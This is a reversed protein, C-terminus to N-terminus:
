NGFGLLYYHSMGDKVKERFWYCINENVNSLNSKHYLAQELGSFIEIEVHVNVNRYQRITGHGELRISDDKYLIWNCGM